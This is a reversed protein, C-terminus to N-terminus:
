APRPTSAPSGTREACSERLAQIALAGEGTLSANRARDTYTELEENGWGGGGTEFTWKTADVLAGSPGEFEDSWVLSFGGAPPPSTTPPRDTSGSAGCALAPLFLAGLLAMRAARRSGAAEDMAGSNHGM